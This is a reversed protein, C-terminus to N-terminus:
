DLKALSLDFSPQPMKLDMKELTQVLLEALFYDRYPKNDSPVVYWPAQATSTASLADEYAKM